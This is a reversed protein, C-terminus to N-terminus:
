PRRGHRGQTKEATITGEITITIFTDPLNELGSNNILPLAKGVTAFPHEKSGDGAANSAPNFDLGAPLPQLAYVKKLPETQIAIGLFTRGVEIIYDRFGAGHPAAVRIVIDSNGLPPVIMRNLSGRGSEGNISVTAKSNEAEALLVFSAPADSINYNEIEPDFSGELLIVPSSPSLTTLRVNFDVCAINIDGEYLLRGEKATKLKLHLSGENGAAAEQPITVTLTDADPQTVTLGSLGTGLTPTLSSEIALTYGLPNDLPISFSRTGGALCVYGDTGLAVLGTKSVVEKVTITGTQERLFFKLDYYFPKCATALLLCLFIGAPLGPRRKM